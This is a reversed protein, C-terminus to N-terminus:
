KISELPVTGGRQHEKLAADILDDMQPDLMSELAVMFDKVQENCTELWHLPDSIEPDDFYGHQKAASLVGDAMRELPLLKSHLAEVLELNFTPSQVVREAFFRALLYPRLMDLLARPLLQRGATGATIGPASQFAARALATQNDIEERIIEPTSM